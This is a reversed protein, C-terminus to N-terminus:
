KHLDKVLYKPLAFDKRTINRESKCKWIKVTMTSVGLLKAVMDESLSHESMFEKLENM